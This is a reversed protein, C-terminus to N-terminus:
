FTPEVSFIESLTELSWVYALFIEFFSVLIDKRLKRFQLSEKWSRWPDELNWLNWRTPETEGAVPRQLADCADLALSTTNLRRLKTAAAFNMLIQQSNNTSVTKCCLGVHFWVQFKTAVEMTCYSHNHSYLTTHHRAIDFYLVYISYKLLILFAPIEGEFRESQVGCWWGM